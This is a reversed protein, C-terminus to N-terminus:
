PGAWFLIYFFFVSIFIWKSSTWTLLDSKTSIEFTVGLFHLLGSNPRMNCWQCEVNNNKRQQPLLYIHFVPFIEPFDRFRHKKSHMEEAM